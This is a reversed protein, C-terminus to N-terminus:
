DEPKWKNGSLEACVKGSGGVKFGAAEQCVPSIQLEIRLKGNPLEQFSVEDFREWHIDPVIANPGSSILTEARTRREQSVFAKLEAVNKPWRGNRIQYGAAMGYIAGADAILASFEENQWAAAPHGRNASACGASLGIMWATISLVTIRAVSRPVRM